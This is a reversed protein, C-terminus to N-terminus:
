RPFSRKSAEPLALTEVSFCTLVPEHCKVPFYLLHLLIPNLAIAFCHGLYPWKYPATVSRAHAIGSPASHNDPDLQCIGPSVQDLALIGSIM